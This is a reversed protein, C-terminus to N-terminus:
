ASFKISKSLRHDYAVVSSNEDNSAHVLLTEFGIQEGHKRVETDTQEPKNSEGSPRKELIFCIKGKCLFSSDGSAFVLIQTGVLKNKTTGLGKVKPM